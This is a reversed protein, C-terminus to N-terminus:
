IKVMYNKLLPFRRQFSWIWTPIPTKHVTSVNTFIANTLQDSCNMSDTVRCYFYFVEQVSYNLKGSQCTLFRENRELGLIWGIANQAGSESPSSVASGLGGLQILPPSYCSIPIFFLRSPFSGCSAFLFSLELSFPPPSSSFFNFITHHTGYQSLANNAVM